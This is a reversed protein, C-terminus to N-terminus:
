AIQKHYALRIFCKLRDFLKGTKVIIITQFDFFKADKRSLTINPPPHKPQITVGAAFTPPAEVMDFFRSRKKGNYEAQVVRGAAFTPPAEVIDFFPKTKQWQIRSASGKCLINICFLYFNVMWNM